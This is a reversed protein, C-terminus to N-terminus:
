NVNRREVNINFRGDVSIVSKRFLGLLQGSFTGQINNGKISKITVTFNYDYLYKDDTNYYVRGSDSPNAPSYGADIYSSGLDYSKTTIPASADLWISIWDAKQDHNVYGDFILQNVPAFTIIPEVVYTKTVGDVTAVITNAPAIGSKKCSFLFASLCFVLLLVRKM